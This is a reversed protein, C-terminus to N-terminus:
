ATGTCSNGNTPASIVLNMPAAKRDNITRLKLKLNRITKKNLSPKKKM